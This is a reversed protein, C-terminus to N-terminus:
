LPDVDTKVGISVRLPRASGLRGASCFLARPTLTSSPETWTVPVAHVGEPLRAKAATELLRAPAAGATPCVSVVAVRPREVALPNVEPSFAARRPMELRVVAARSAARRRQLADFKARLEARAARGAELAVQGPGVEAPAAAAASAPALLALALLARLKM